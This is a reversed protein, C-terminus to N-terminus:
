FRSETNVKLVGFLKQSVFGIVLFFLTILYYETFMFSHQGAIESVWLLMIFLQCFFLNILPKNSHSIMWGAISFIPCGIILPLYNIGYTYGFTVSIGGFAGLFLASKWDIKRNFSLLGRISPRNGILLFYSIIAIQGLYFIQTLTKFAPAVLNTSDIAGINILQILYYGSIITIAVSVFASTINLKAVILSMYKTIAKGRIAFAFILCILLFTLLYFLTPWIEAKGQGLDRIENHKQYEKFLYVPIFIFICQLLLMSVAGYILLMGNKRFGVDPNIKEFEQEITSIPGIRKMAIIWIEDATLNSQSLEQIIDDLHNKLEEQDDPNLTTRQLLSQWEVIKINIYPLTADM